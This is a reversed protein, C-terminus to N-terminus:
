GNSAYSGRSERVNDHFPYDIFQVGIERKEKKIKEVLSLRLSSLDGASIGDVRALSRIILKVELDLGSGSLFFFYFPFFFGQQLSQITM